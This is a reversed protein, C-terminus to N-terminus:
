KGERFESAKVMDDRRESSTPQEKEVLGAASWNTKVFERERNREQCVIKGQEVSKM